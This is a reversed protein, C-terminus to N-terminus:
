TENAESEMLAEIAAILNEEHRESDIFRYGHELLKVRIAHELICSAICADVIYDSCAHGPKLEILWHKVLRSWRLQRRQGCCEWEVVGMWELHEPKLLDTIM